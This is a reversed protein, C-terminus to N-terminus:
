KSQRALSEEYNAQLNMWFDAPIQFVNELMLATNATIPSKGKIIENITKITLGTRNSLQKQSIKTTDLFEALTIGPHIPIPSIFKKIPLM